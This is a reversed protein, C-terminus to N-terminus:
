FRFLYATQEAAHELSNITEIEARKMTLYDQIRSEGFHRQFLSDAELASLAVSLDSPYRTMGRSEREAVSLLAPDTMVPEGPSAGQDIGDLGACLLASLALYPNF